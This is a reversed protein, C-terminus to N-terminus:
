RHFPYFFLDYLFIGSATELAVRAFTPTEFVPKPGFLHYGLGFQAFLLWISGLYAIAPVVTKHWDRGFGRLPHLPPQGDLRHQLARLTCCLTDSRARLADTEAAHLECIANM